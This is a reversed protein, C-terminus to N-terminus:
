GKSKGRNKTFSCPCHSVAGYRKSTPPPPVTQTCVLAASMLVSNTIAIKDNVTVKEEIKLSPACGTHSAGYRYRRNTPPPPVTQTCVLAATM